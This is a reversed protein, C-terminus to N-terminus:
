DAPMPIGPRPSAAPATRLREAAAVLDEVMAEAIVRGKEVTALTADGYVGTASHGPGPDRHYMPPVFVGRADPRDPIERALKGTRVAEPAIALLLSTEHEDAHSGRPQALLGTTRQAGLDGIRTVGVLLRHVRDLDRAVIELVPYTSVGTNLFLFRRPGHRHISLVLETMMAQFTRAELHTSGPFPSFHPFYGYVVTPLVVVPVREALRRALYEAMIRDTGLPLHPGHEKAGAGIPIVVLPDARLLPEAETWTLEELFVGRPSM